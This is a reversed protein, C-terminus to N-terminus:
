EYGIMAKFYRIVTCDYQFYKSSFLRDSGLACSRKLYKAFEHKIDFYNEFHDCTWVVSTLFIELCLHVM